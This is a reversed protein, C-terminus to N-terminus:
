IDYVAVPGLDREIPRDCRFKEFHDLLEVWYKDYAFWYASEQSPITVFGDRHTSPLQNHGVASRQAELYVAVLLIAVTVASCRIKSIKHECEGLQHESKGCSVRVPSQHRAVFETLGGRTCM